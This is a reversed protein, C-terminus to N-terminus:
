CLWVVNVDGSYSWSCAASFQQWARWWRYSWTEKLRSKSRVSFARTKRHSAQSFTHNWSFHPALRPWSCMTAFPLCPDWSVTASRATTRLRRTWSSLHIWYWSSCWQLTHCCCRSVSWTCQLVGDRSRQFLCLFCRRSSTIMAKSIKCLRRKYSYTLKRCVKEILYCYLLIKALSYVIVSNYFGLQCSLMNGNNTSVAMCAIFVFVLTLVYYALVIGRSYFVQGEVGALKRGFILSVATVCAVSNIESLIEWQDPRYMTPISQLFQHNSTSLSLFLFSSFFIPNLLLSYKLSCWAFHWIYPAFSFLTNHSKRQTLAHDSSRCRPPLYPSPSLSFLFFHATLLSIM